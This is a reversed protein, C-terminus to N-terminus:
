SNIKENEDGCANFTVIPCDDCDDFEDWDNGFKHKKPCAPKSSDEKEEKKNRRSRRPKEEEEEPEEEPEEQKKKNRRSRSPKEEEEEEEEKEEKKNRRSRRPKEEEEEEEEEEKRNRRSKPPEEDDDDDVDLGMFLDKLEDYSFLEICEDLNPAEDMIDEDYQDDREDFDIRSTKLYSNGSFEEESFRIKLTYGDEPGPFIAADPDEDLETNLQDQFCFQSIDWLHMEEDYEKNNKPIVVYLNRFQAKPTVEKADMGEKFEQDRLECIPCPKGETKPCIVSKKEPGVNHHVYIPKKYWPNDMHASDPDDPHRDIHRKSSVIYPIIDLYQRGEEEKYMKVDKPLKLYGFNSKQKSKQRAADNTVNAGFRSRKKKTM